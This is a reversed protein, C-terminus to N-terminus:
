LKRKNKPKAEPKKKVKKLAEGFLHKSIHPYTNWKGTGVFREIVEGDVIVEGLIGHELRKLRLELEEM